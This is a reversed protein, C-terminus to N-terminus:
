AWILRDSKALNVAAPLLQLNSLAWCLRFDPDHATEYSFAAVPVIHDIHLKGAMFDAWTYGAPLTSRLRHELAEPKYGLLEFTRKGAKSKLRHRMQQQMLKTVRFKANSRYLKHSSARNSTRVSAVSKMRWRKNWSRHCHICRWVKGPRQFVPVGCDACSKMAAEARRVTKNMDRILRDIQTSARRLDTRIRSITRSTTREAALRPAHRQRYNRQHQQQREAVGARQNYKAKYERSCSRCRSSGKAFSDAPLAQKCMWCNRTAETAPQV